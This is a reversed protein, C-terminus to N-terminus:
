STTGPPVPIMQRALMRDFCYAFTRQVAALNRQGQQAVLSVVTNNLAAMVQPGTGRRLQGADEALSVDRRYHLGNEIGWELRVLHLLRAADAVSSPLSTVGYCVELRSEGGITVHRELQFVQALGPWTSYGTLMSSVTIRREELRGHGKEMRSATVFDTPPASGAVIPPPTFLTEIESRLGPQNDKVFWVYDGGADLIQLSLHRQTQMADGVVVTGHLDLQALLLPVVVIENEKRDVALQALVVGTEPLYAAVLHVGSTQGLPITGRLTKGDVALVISGRAPAVLSADPCFFTSLAQELATPDVATGLIRSWTSVHPMTARNLGFLQALETARLQAWAAIATLRCYGALKALVAITLLPVLPYRVGRRARQDVLPALQTMLAPLSFAFPVDPPLQLAFPLTSSDM